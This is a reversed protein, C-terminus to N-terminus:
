TSYVKQQKSLKKSLVVNKLVCKCVDCPCDLKCKRININFSSLSTCNKINQPFIESIKSALFSITGTGYM